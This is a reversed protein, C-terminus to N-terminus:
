VELKVPVTEFAGGMMKRRRGWWLVTGEAVIPVALPIRVRFDVEGKNLGFGFHDHATWEQAINDPADQEVKIYYNRPPSWDSYVEVTGHYTSLVWVRQGHHVWASDIVRFTRVWAVFSPTLLLMAFIRLIFRM